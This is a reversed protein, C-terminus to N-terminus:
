EETKRKEKERTQPARLGCTIGEPRRVVGVDRKEGVAFQLLHRDGPPRRLHQGASQRRAAATPSTRTDYNIRRVGFTRDPADVDISRSCRRDGLINSGLIVLGVAPGNKKGVAVM